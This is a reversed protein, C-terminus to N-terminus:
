SIPSRAIMATMSVGSIILNAVNLLFNWPMALNGATVRSMEKTRGGTLVSSEFEHDFRYVGSQIDRCLANFTEIYRTMVYGASVASSRWKELEEDVLVIERYCEFMYIRIRKTEFSYEFALDSVLSLVSRYESVKSERSYALSEGDFKCHRVIRKHHSNVPARFDDHVCYRINKGFITVNELSGEGQINLTSINSRVASSFTNDLEATLIIDDCRGIGRLSMGDTLKVGVMSIENYGGGIDASNIEEITYGELTNYTGEYVEIVYPNTLHNANCDLSIVLSMM